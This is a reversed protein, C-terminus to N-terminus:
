LHIAMKLNADKLSQGVQLDNPLEINTGTIDMEMDKYQKFMDSNMLSKLEISISNGECTIHYETTTIEKGQNDLTWAYQYHVHANQSDNQVGSVHTCFMACMHQGHKLM